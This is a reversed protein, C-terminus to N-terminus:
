LKSRWLGSEGTGLGDGLDVCLGEGLEVEQCDCTPEGNMWQTVVFDVRSKGVIVMPSHWVGAAYTVGVGPETVFAKLNQLDPLGGVAQGQTSSPAQPFYPTGSSTSTPPTLTPAVIIISRTDGYSPAALPVFTQTTFPHRELIRVDFVQSERGSPNTTSRLERPFCCFMTVATKAPAGGWSQHYTSTLPSISPFKLATSQNAVVSGQPPPHPLTNTTTAAPLPSEIVTGFASFAEATLAVPQVDLRPSPLVVPPLPEQPM